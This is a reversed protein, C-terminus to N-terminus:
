SENEKRMLYDRLGMAIGMSVQEERKKQEVSDLIPRNIIITCNKYQLTKTLYGPDTESVTWGNRRAEENDIM